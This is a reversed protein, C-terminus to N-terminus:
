EKEQLIRAVFSRSVAAKEELARADIRAVLDRAAAASREMRSLMYTITPEEVAIQRDSFHKVLLGRLLEDDPEHLVAVPTAHLRSALDKLSVDWALPNSRSTLLATGRKERVVNLLHFLAREDRTAEDLDEVLLHRGNGLLDPVKDPALDAADRRIADSALRWVEALHTKGSGPPGVLVLVPGLWDPWRDILAVATENSATVLFDDRGLAPRHPLDLTLQRSPKSSRDTM